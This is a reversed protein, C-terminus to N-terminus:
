VHSHLSHCPMSCVVASAPALRDATAAMLVRGKGHVQLRRRLATGKRNCAWCSVVGGGLEFAAPFSNSGGGGGRRICSQVASM